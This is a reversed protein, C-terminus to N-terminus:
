SSFTFIYVRSFYGEVIIARRKGKYTSIIEASRAGKEKSDILFLLKYMSVIEASRAGIEGSNILIFLQYISVNEASRAGIEESNM